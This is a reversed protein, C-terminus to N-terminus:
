PLHPAAARYIQTAAERLFASGDRTLLDLTFTCAPRQVALHGGGGIPYARWAATAGDVPFDQRDGAWGPGSPPWGLDGTLEITVFDTQGDDRLLGYQCPEDGTAGGLWASRHHHGEAGNVAALVSDATVFRCNAPGDPVAPPPLHIRALCFLLEVNRGPLHPVPTGPTTGEYRWNLEYTTATDPADKCPVDDPMGPARPLDSIFVDTLRRRVTFNARPDTCDLREAEAGRVVRLCDGQKAINPSRAPDADKAGICVIKFDIELLRTAGPVDRCPSAGSRRSDGVKFVRYRATRDQCSVRRYPPDAGSNDALCDGVDARDVNSNAGDVFHRVVLWGGGCLCGLVALILVRFPVTRQDSEKLLEVHSNVSCSRGGLRERSQTSTGVVDDDCVHVPASLFGGVCGPHGEKVREVVMVDAQRYKDEGGREIGPASHMRPDEGVGIAAIICNLVDDVEHLPDLEARDDLLPSCCCLVAVSPVAGAAIPGTRGTQGRTLWSRVEDGIESVSAILHPTHRRSPGSVMTEHGLSGVGLVGVVGM